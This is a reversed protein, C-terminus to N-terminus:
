LEISNLINSYVGSFFKLIEDEKSNNKTTIESMKKMLNYNDFKLQKNEEKLQENEQELVKVKRTLTENGKKLEQVLGAM